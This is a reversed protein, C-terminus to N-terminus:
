AARDRFQSHTSRRRREAELQEMRASYRYWFKAFLGVAGLLTLAIMFVPTTDFLSDLGWGAAFFLMLMIVADMGHGLSDERNVRTTKPILKM